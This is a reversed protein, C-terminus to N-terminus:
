TRWQFLLNERVTDSWVIRALNGTSWIIRQREGRRSAANKFKKFIGGEKLMDCIGIDTLKEDFQEGLSEILIPNMSQGFRDFIVHKSYLWFKTTDFHIM